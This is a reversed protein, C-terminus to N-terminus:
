SAGLNAIVADFRRATEAVQPISQAATVLAARDDATGAHGDPITTLSATMAPDPPLSLRASLRDAFARDGILAEYTVIVAKDRRIALYDLLAAYDTAIRPALAEISSAGFYRGSARSFALASGLWDRFDRLLIIETSGPWILEAVMPTLTNPPTKEAVYRPTWGPRGPAHPEALAPLADRLHDAMIPLASRRHHAFLDPYDNPSLFPNTSALYPLDLFQDTGAVPLNIASPTVALRAHHLALAIQRSEYPHTPPAAIDPHAGLMAMLATSGSRGLSTVFVPASATPEPRTPRYRFAIRAMPTFNGAAYSSDATFAPAQAETIAALVLTDMDQLGIMNVFLRFGTPTDEPVGLAATVDARPYLRTHILPSRFLVPAYAAVARIPGDRSTVWGVIDLYASDAPNGIDAEAPQDLAWSGGEYLRTIGTIELQQIAM